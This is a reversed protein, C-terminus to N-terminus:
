RPVPHGNKKLIRLTLVDLALHSPTPIKLGYREVSDSPVFFMRSEKEATLHLVRVRETPFIEHRFPVTYAACM